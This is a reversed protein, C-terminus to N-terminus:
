KRYLAEIERTYVRSIAERRLKRSPTVLGQEESFPVPLIRFARISEARSVQTNAASIARRIEAKLDPDGALDHPDGEPKGCLRLWHTVADFDLTILAAVYPRDNGIVVCHEVLPHERVREELLAPFLNKGSATVIIEKRRGTIVLYGEDDLQGLDGTALWGDSMSSATGEPDDLYRAFIADGRLLIEGSDSLRLSVGPIPRGVTGYRVRGPPNVTAAGAAETLGYGEYVTLGAGEYFLGLRRNITSGGSVANVVRGGMAGRIKSYVLTDFLRHLVRLGLGPGPGKGFAHHERAEAYRVAVDVARDFIKVKGDAEAKARASNFIKEFVYPVGLVFTPQFSALEPLLAAATMEPVHGLRGNARVAAVQVMRGFIHALPLFLLDSHQKGDPEFIPLARAILNDVGSMFNGHTLVCGRPHGSTGSTYVISAVADPTVAFRHRHVVDDSIRAGQAVLRDMVGADLQWVHVLEPLRDIVSGLSMVHDEHEVVCAVASTERLIWALQEPSATPYVPVPQAGISWLAFDFITWEYRTRSMIGVRDGFRVGQSLLGRALALVQDRFEANSVDTWQGDVKRGLQTRGPDRAANEFVSDALGGVKSTTVTPESVERV